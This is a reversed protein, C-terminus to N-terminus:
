DNFIKKGDPNFYLFSHSKLDEDYQYQVMLNNEKNLFKNDGLHHHSNVISKFLKTAFDDSHTTQTCMFNKNEGWKFFYMTMLENRITYMVWYETQKITEWNETGFQLRNREKIETPSFSVMPKQAFSISSTLCVLITLIFKKM